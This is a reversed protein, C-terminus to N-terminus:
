LTHWLQYRMQRACDLVGRRAPADRSITGLYEAFPRRAPHAVARSIDHEIRIAMIQFSRDILGYAMTRDNPAVAAALWGFAKAKERDNQSNQPIREVLQM